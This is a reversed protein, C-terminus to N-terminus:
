TALSAELFKRADELHRTWKAEVDRLPADRLLTYLELHEVYLANASSYHKRLIAIMLRLEGTLSAFFESLRPSGAAEVVSCHFAVDAEAVEHWNANPSLSEFNALTAEVGVLPLTSAKIARVADLEVLRRVRYLDSVEAPEFCRVRASYGPPRVLMGENILQQVVMRATPRAIGFEEAVQTDSLEQGAAYGGTLLDNRLRNVAADVLSVTELPQRITM